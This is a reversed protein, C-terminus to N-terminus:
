STTPALYQLSLSSGVQMALQALLDSPDAVLTQLKALKAVVADRACHAELPDDPSLLSASIDASLDQQTHDSQHLQRMSTAAAILEALCTDLEAWRAAM